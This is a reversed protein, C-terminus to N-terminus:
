PSGGGNTSRPDGTAELPKGDLYILPMGALGYHASLSRALASCLPLCNEAGRGFGEIHVLERLNTLGLDLVELAGGQKESIAACYRDDGRHSHYDIVLVAERSVAEEMAPGYRPHELIKQILGAFVDEGSM